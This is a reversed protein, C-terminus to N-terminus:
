PRQTRAAIVALITLTVTVLASLLCFQCYHGIVFAQLYLLWITTLFMLGIIPILLKGALQYQFAALTALAFATFYAISGILALPVGAVVAYPSGLVESCGSTITCRVSQGTVHEITLYLSDALGVLALCAAVGYLIPARRPPNGQSANLPM